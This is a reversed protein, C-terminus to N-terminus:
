QVSIDHGLRSASNVLHQSMAKRARDPDRAIIADLIEHHERVADNPIGGFVPGPRSYAAAILVRMPEVLTGILNALYENGSAHAILRHFELDANVTEATAAGVVEMQALAAELAKQRKATLHRAASAAAQAELVARVEFLNRISPDSQLVNVTVRHNADEGRVTVFAGLGQRSEVLGRARLSAIAERIVNRGVGFNESLFHESPLRDGPQLRGSEIEASLASAVNEALHPRREVRKVNLESM